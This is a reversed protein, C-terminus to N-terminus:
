VNDKMFEHENTLQSLINLVGQPKKRYEPIVKNLHAKIIQEHSLLYEFSDQLENGTVIKKTDLVLNDPLGLDKAIGRSKISYGLAITPVCTSYASIVAHTRSGIFFRCKSIVYRIQCYNLDTIDLVNIRNSAAFKKKIIECIIRDDQGSWIVHPILLIHLKTKELIYQIFNNVQKGFPTNLNFDGLVYNSINLGIVDECSFIDNIKVAEPELVFAPDPFCYINKLGISKFFDFSLSERAYILSFNHLTKEKEPTLNEPGMSCGWLITKVGRQHLFDNTFIAQNNDYCLLDGGTSLMIDNKSIKCLFSGYQKKYSYQKQKERNNVFHNFYFNAIKDFFTNKYTQILTVTKGVGLRTDLPIDTCLGILNNKSLGLIVSTGKAIGECGRNGGDLHLPFFYKINNMIM